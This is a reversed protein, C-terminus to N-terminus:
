AFAALPANQAFAVAENIRAHEESRVADLGAEDAGHALLVPVFRVLPECAQAGAEEARTRYERPDGRSHGSLRYTLLEVLAPGDGARAREIHVALTDRVLLPDNGDVRVGPVSYGAARDAVCPNALGQAVPTSMAYGNNECVFVLPLKWLAALNLTEHFLGQNSAGDGFVALTVSPTRTHRAAMALGAAFPLSGATIGNAGYFGLEPAMMMQSGGRGRSYGPARGFMEAMMRGPDGGMALLHGHGRHSSTLTDGPQLAAAIGAACAEQGICTHATGMVLGERFLREVAEEFVRIRVMARFIHFLDSLPTQM